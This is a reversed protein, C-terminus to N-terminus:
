AELELFLFVSRWILLRKITSAMKLQCKAAPAPGVPQLGGDGAAWHQAMGALWLLQRHVIGWSWTGSAPARYVVSFYYGSVNGIRRCDCM